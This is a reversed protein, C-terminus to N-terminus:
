GTPRTCSATACSCTKTATRDGAVLNSAASDFVVYRGDASVSPANIGSTSNGQVGASSVSVRQTKKAAAAVTGPVLLTALLLSLLLLAFTHWVRM